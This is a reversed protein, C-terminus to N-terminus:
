PEVRRRPRMVILRVGAEPTQAAGPWGGRMPIALSMREPAVRYERRLHDCIVAARDAALDEPAAYESSYFMDATALVRVEHPIHACAKGILRLVRPADSTLRATGEEFVTGPLLHIEFGQETMRYRLMNVVSSTRVLYDFKEAVYNLPDYDPPNEYGQMHIRSADMFRRDLLSDRNLRDRQGMGMYGVLSGMTRAFKGTDMTSFSMLMVFFTMLLTVTDAYTLMWAPVGPATPEEIKPTRESM